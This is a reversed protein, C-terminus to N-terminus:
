PMSGSNGAIKEYDPMTCGARSDRTYTVDEIRTRYQSAALYTRDELLPLETGFYTNFIVRFTNVPSITPYLTGDNQHGPLLLAYLNSTREWVCGPADIDFNFMSAPGHDGMLLIIPPTKSKALIADIAELIKGNAFIVQERYGQQYNEEGGADESDDWLHYPQSQPVANGYGNFVFPPHPVLFHAYVIKPGPISDPVKKLEDFRYLVRQRHSQYGPIPLRLNFVDSIPELPSDKLSVAEFKNLPLSNTLYVDANRIQTYSLAGEFSVTTYGITHLLQFARNNQIPQTIYQDYNSSAVWPQVYDFNWLSAMAYATQIYNSHNQAPVYFGRKELGSIFESNDYGYISQLVDQRGYADLIIVYIDPRMDAKLRIDETLPPIATFGTTSTVQFYASEGFQIIQFILLFACILNFYYTVQVPQHIYRWFKRKVVIIYLLGLVLILAIGLYDAEQLFHASIMRYIPPYIVFLMMFIFLMFYARHLDKVFYHIILLALVSLSLLVFLPRLSQAPDISAIFLTVRDLIAAIVLLLPYPFNRKM